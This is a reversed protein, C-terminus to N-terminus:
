HFLSSLLLDIAHWKDRCMAQWIRCSNSM